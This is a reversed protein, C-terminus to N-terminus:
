VEPFYIRRQSNYCAVHIREMKGNHGNVKKDRRSASFLRHRRVM